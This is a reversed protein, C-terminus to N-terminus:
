FVEPVQLAESDPIAHSLEPLPEPITSTTGLRSFAHSSRFSSGPIHDWTRSRSTDSSNHNFVTLTGDSAVITVMLQSWHILCWCQSTKWTTSAHLVDTICNSTLLMRGMPQRYRNSPMIFLKLSYYTDFAITFQKWLYPCYPVQHWILLYLM